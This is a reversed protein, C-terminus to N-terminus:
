AVRPFGDTLLMRGDKFVCLADAGPTSRILDLGRGSGGVFLVKTLADAEMGSRALVTVSSFESPSLGTRPDFIHHHLFDRSFPTAYDGSTAMFRDELAALAVYADPQRPHQIGM